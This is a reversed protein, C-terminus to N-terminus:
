HSVVGETDIYQLYTKDLNTISYILIDINDGSSLMEPDTVTNSPKSISLELVISFFFTLFLFPPFDPTLPFFKITFILLHTLDITQFYPFSTNKTREDQVNLPVFLLEKIVQNSNKLQNITLPNERPFM